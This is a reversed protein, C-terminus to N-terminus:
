RFLWLTNSTVNIQFIWTLSLKNILPFFASIVSINDEVALIGLLTCYNGANVCLWNSYCFVCTVYSWSSCANKISSFSEWPYTRQLSFFINMYNGYIFLVKSWHDEEHHFIAFTVNKSKCWTVKFNIYLILLQIIKLPNWYWWSMTGTHDSSPVLIM